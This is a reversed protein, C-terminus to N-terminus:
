IWMLLIENEETIIKVEELDTLEIHAYEQNDPTSNRKAPENTYTKNVIDDYNGM